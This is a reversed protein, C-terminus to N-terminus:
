PQATGKDAGAGDPGPFIRQISLLLQLDGSITVAGRLVAAMANVHGQLMQEFLSRDVTITADADTGGRALSVMGKDVTMTWRDPQAGGLLDVVLTGSTKALLPEYGREALGRLHEEVMDTVAVEV